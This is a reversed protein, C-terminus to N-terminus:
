RAKMATSRNSAPPRVEAEGAQELPDAKQNVVAVALEGGGEVLDEAAFSDCDDRRRNARWLRIGVGLAGDAGDAGLAQVPKQDDAAAVELKHEAGIGGMVVALARVASERQM